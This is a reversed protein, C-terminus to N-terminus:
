LDLFKSLIANLQLLADNSKKLEFEIFPSSYKKNKQHVVKAIQNINVGIKNIQFLMDRNYTVKSTAHNYHEKNLLYDRLLTGLKREPINDLDIVGIKHLVSVYESQNLRLRITFIRLKNKDKKPRGM